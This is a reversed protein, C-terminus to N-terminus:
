RGDEECKSIATSAAIVATSRSSPRGRADMGGVVDEAGIRSMQRTLKRDVEHGVMQRLGPDATLFQASMILVDAMESAFDERINEHSSPHNKAARLRSAAASLEASEECLKLLQNEEGYHFFISLIRPDCFIADLPEISYFM